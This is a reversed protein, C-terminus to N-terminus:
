QLPCQALPSSIAFPMYHPPQQLPVSLCLLSRSRSWEGQGGPGQEPPTDNHASIDLSSPDKKPPKAPDNWLPQVRQFFGEKSKPDIQISMIAQLLVSGVRIKEADTM